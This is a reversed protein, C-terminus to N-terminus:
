KIFHRTPLTIGTVEEGIDSGVAKDIRHVNREQFRFDAGTQWLAAFSLEPQLTREGSRMRFHDPSEISGNHCCITFDLM